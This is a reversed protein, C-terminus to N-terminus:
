TFQITRARYQEADPPNTLDKVNGVIRLEVAKMLRLHKEKEYAEGSGTEKEEAKVAEYRKYTKSLLAQMSAVVLEAAKALPLDLEQVSDQSVWGNVDLVGARSAENRLRATILAAFTDGTGVFYAPFYPADIVFARLTGDARATSGIITLYPPKSTNSGNKDGELQTSTVLVHPVKYERHLVGVADLLSTINTIKTNALTELEFQNPLLLHCLSLLSRYVPAESSPVYFAGSDGM